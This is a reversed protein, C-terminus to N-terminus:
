SRQPANEGRTALAAEYAAVDVDAFACIVIRLGSEPHAGLWKALTAFVLQAAEDKPYGYEGTSVSCLGVSGLGADAVADLVSRYCSALLSRDAGTPRGGEVIPGVTHVVHAAPLHYGGTLLARGTEEPRGGRAEMYAACEARLGPGAVAHIVNDICTHGPVFCGLMQANAANVIAGARLTTLDGRWLAVQEGLRGAMGHTAALTPLALADPAGADHVRQAAEAALMEDLDARVDDDPIERPPRITLLGDLLRRLEVPPLEALAAPPPFAAVDGAQVAETAFHRTLRHLRAVDATPAHPM